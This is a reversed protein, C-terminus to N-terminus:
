VVWTWTSSYIRRNGMPVWKREKWMLTKDAGGYKSAENLKDFVDGTIFTTNNENLATLKAAYNAARGVWVLDNDNRV